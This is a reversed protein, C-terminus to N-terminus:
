SGMAPGPGPFEPQLNARADSTVFYNNGGASGIGLSGRRPTRTGPRSGAQTFGDAAAAACRWPSLLQQDPGAGPGQGPGPGFGLGALSPDSDSDSVGLRVQVPEPNSQTTSLTVTHSSSEHYSTIVMIVIIIM